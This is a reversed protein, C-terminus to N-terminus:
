LPMMKMKSPRAIKPTINIKTNIKMESSMKM